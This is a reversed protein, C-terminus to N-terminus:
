FPLFTSPSMNKAVDSENLTELRGRKSLVTGKESAKDQIRVQSLCSCSNSENM